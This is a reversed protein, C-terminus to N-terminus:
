QPPLNERVRTYLEDGEVTIDSAEAAPPSWDAAQQVLHREWNSITAHSKNFVRATARIGGGESRMKLAYAVVEPSSRLRAMPTATRENSRKGCEHCRYVQLRTGNKLLQKGYKILSTADCYPCKM